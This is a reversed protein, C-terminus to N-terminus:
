RTYRLPLSSPGYVHFAGRPQWVPTGVEFTAMRPLLDALAVRGELRALPAGLCVHIGQGFGLHPNPDRGIDFRNPDPFVSSDRNAAGTMLYVLWGAPIERDGLVMPRRAMRFATQLSPRYRMIEEIASPMLTPDARLRALEAPNEALTIISNTILNTTTETGAVILLEVFHIIQRQTLKTGDVEAQVLRTLLDSKPQSRREDIRAELYATGEAHIAEQAELTSDAGKRLFPDILCLIAAGWASLRRWDEHPLGLMDAMVLMPLAEAYDVALDIEGSGAALLPAALMGSLERIRDELAAISRPTFARNVIARMQTHRPPDFLPLWEFLQGRSSELASSFTEHDHLARKVGDYDLVMSAGFEDVHVVNSGARRLEEYVPYPNQRMEESFLKM